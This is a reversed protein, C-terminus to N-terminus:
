IYTHGIKMDDEEQRASQTKWSLHIRSWLMNVKAPRERERQTHVAHLVGVYKCNGIFVLLM